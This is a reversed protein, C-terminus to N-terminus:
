ERKGAPVPHRYVTLTERTMRETAYRHCDTCHMAHEDERRCHFGKADYCEDGPYILIADM